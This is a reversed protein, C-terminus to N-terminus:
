PANLRALPLHVAWPWVSITKVKTFTPSCFNSTTLRVVYSQKEASRPFIHAVHDLGDGSAQATGDGFDWTYQIPPSGTTIESTLNVVEGSKPIAPQYYLDIGTVVICTEEVSLRVPIEIQPEHEDDSSVLLTTTYVDEMIPAMYVLSVEQNSAAEITGGLPAVALWPVDPDEALLWTLHVGGNNEITLTRTITSGPEAQVDLSDPVINIEPYGIVNVSQEATVSNACNSATMALTYVDSITYTHTLVHGSGAQGDGFNWQFNIPTTGSIGVTGTFITTHGAIPPVPTYIFDPEGVPQCVELPIDLTTTQNGSVSIGSVNFPVYGDANATVSYEGAPLNLQYSGDTLSTTYWIQASTHTAEISAASIPTSTQADSVRGELKGSALCGMHAITGVAAKVFNTFYNIDLTSLLDGTTHYYPTFDQYDEIALIAPYGYDWFSAHDSAGTGPSIIEATLDINYTAIVDTFLTAIAQDGTNGPRTHLEIVPADDSNYGIMDLNLVAQIDENNNFAEQAYAASGYLGQEEGTFLVYRLTCDFNYNSLIDAALLVGTSGSANDDAGPALLGGPMDDLHATILFIREAQSAGMQEAEVNRREGYWPHNYPHYNVDLGLSQFHEYVFQTAKESATVQGSHRTAITYPSGGIAVSWEGSLIGDYNYVTASDVLDIMEQITVEPTIASPLTPAAEDPLVILHPSLQRLEIGLGLLQEAEGPTARAIAQRGDINLIDVRQGADAFVGALHATLLYYTANQTNPDLIQLDLGQSILIDQLERHAAAILYHTGSESYFQGYISLQTNKLHELEVPSSLNIRVLAEAEPDQAGAFTQVSGNLLLMLIFGIIAAQFIAYRKPKKM